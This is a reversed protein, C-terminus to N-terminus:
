AAMWNVGLNVRRAAEDGVRAAGIFRCAFRDPHQRHSTLPEGRAAIVLDSRRAMDVLIALRRNLVELTRGPDFFGPVRSDSKSPKTM